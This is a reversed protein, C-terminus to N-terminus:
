HGLLRRQPRRPQQHTRLSSRVAGAVDGRERGEASAPHRLCADRHATLHRHEHSRRGPARRPRKWEAYVSRARRGAACRRHCPRRAAPSTAAALTIRSWRRSQNTHGSCAHVLLNSNSRGHPLSEAVPSPAQGSQKASPTRCPAVAVVPRVLGVAAPASLEACAIVVTVPPPTDAIITQRTRHHRLRRRRPSSARSGPARPAHPGHVRRPRRSPTHPPRPSSSEVTTATIVLEVGPSPTPHRRPHRRRGARPRRRSRVADHPHSPQALVFISATHALVLDTRSRSASSAAQPLFRSM